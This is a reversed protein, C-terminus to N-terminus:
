SWVETVKLDGGGTAWVEGDWPHLSDIYIVTPINTKTGAGASDTPSYLILGVGGAITDRGFYIVVMQGDGVLELRAFVRGPRVDLVREATAGMAYSLQSVSRDM